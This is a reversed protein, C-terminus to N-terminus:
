HIVSSVDVIVTKGAFLREIRMAMEIFGGNWTTSDSVGLDIGKLNVCFLVKLQIYLRLRMSILWCSIWPGTVAVMGHCQSSYDSHSCQLVSWIEQSLISLSPRVSQIIVWYEIQVLWRFFFGHVLEMSYQDFARVFAPDLLNISETLGFVDKSVNM